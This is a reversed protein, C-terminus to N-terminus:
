LKLLKITSKKNLLPITSESISSKVISKYQDTTMIPPLTSPSYRDAWKGDKYVWAGGEGFPALFLEERYHSWDRPHVSKVVSNDYNTFGFKEGLKLNPYRDLAEIKLQSEESPTYQSYKCSTKRRLRDNLWMIERSNMSQYNRKGNKTSITFKVPIDILEDDWSVGMGEGFLNGNENIYCESTLQIYYYGQFMEIDSIKVYSDPLPLDITEVPEIDCIRYSDEYQNDWLIIFYYLEDNNDANLSHGLPYNKEYGGENWKTITGDEEDSQHPYYESSKRLRVRDGIKYKIMTM